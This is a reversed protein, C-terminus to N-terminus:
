PANGGERYSREVAVACLPPLSNGRREFLRLCLADFLKGSQGTYATGRVNIAQVIESDMARTLEERPGPLHRDLNKAAPEPLITEGTSQSLMTIRTLSAGWITMHIDKAIRAREREIAQERELRELRRRMRRRTDFWVIGSAAAATMLGSLIRFWWTQWFYPLLTFM